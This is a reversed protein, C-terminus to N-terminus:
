SWNELYFIDLNIMEEYVSRARGSVQWLRRIGPKFGSGRKAHEDYHGSGMANPVLDSLARDGNLVNIIQAPEDLSFRRLWRGVRTIRPDNKM